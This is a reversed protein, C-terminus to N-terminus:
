SCPSVAAACRTRSRKTWPLFFAIAGTVRQLTYRWNSGYRYAGVNFDAGAIIIWGVAAHFLIPLFIFTWEVLPLIPGLAHIQNVSQQYKAPSDLITANALLHVCLYAGVPILGSLSFLRYILFQHRALFSQGSPAHSASTSEM